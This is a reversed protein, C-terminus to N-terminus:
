QRVASSGFLYLGFWRVSTRLFLDTYVISDVFPRYSAHLICTTSSVFLCTVFLRNPLIYASDHMFTCDFQDFLCAYVRLFSCVFSRVLSHVIPRVFSHIISSGFLCIFPCHGIYVVSHLTFRYLRDSGILMHLFSHVFSQVFSRVTSPVFRYLVYYIFYVISRVSSCDFSHTYLRFFYYKYIYPWVSRYLVLYIRIEDIIDEWRILEITYNYPHIYM